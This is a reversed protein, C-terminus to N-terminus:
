KAQGSCRVMMISKKECCITAELPQRSKRTKLKYVTVKFKLEQIPPLMKNFKETEFSWVFELRAIMNLKCRVPQEATVDCSLDVTEKAEEVTLPLWRRHTIKNSWFRCCCCAWPQGLQLTRHCLLEAEDDAWNCADENIVRLFTTVVASTLQSTWNYREYHWHTLNNVYLNNDLQNGTRIVEFRM